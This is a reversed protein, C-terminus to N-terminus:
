EALDSFDTASFSFYGLCMGELYVASMIIFLYDCVDLLLLGSVRVYSLHHVGGGGGVKSGLM